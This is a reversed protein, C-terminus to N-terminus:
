RVRKSNFIVAMLDYQSSSPNHLTGDSQMSEIPTEYVLLGDQENLMELASYGAWSSTVQYTADFASPPGYSVRLRLDLRGGPGISNSTYFKPGTEACSAAQIMAGNCDWDALYGASVMTWNVGGDVSKLLDRTNTANSPRTTAYITGDLDEAIATENSGTLARNGATWTAGGDDSVFCIFRFYAGGNEFIYAPLVLRGAYTGHRLQIGQPGSSFICYENAGSAAANMVTATAPATWTAGDDDSQIYEAVHPTPQSNPNAASSVYFLYIRGANTGHRVVLPTHGFAAATQGPVTGSTISRYTVLVRSASATLARTIPDFTLDCAVLRSNQVDTTIVDNTDHSILLVHNDSIKALAPVRYYAGQAVIVDRLMVPVFKISAVEGYNDDAHKSNAYIAQKHSANAATLLPMSHVMAAFERRRGELLQLQVPDTEGELMLGGEPDIYAFVNGDRDQAAWLAGTAATEFEIADQLTQVAAASPFRKGTDTAVGANDWWLELTEASDASVVYFYEGNAVAALGAATNAYIRAAALAADRAVEAAAQATEAAEQAALVDASIEASLTALDTGGLINDVPWGSVTAGNADKLLFKYRHDFQLWILAEGNADLAIPNTNLTTLDRDQWTNAPTTTGAEYVTLSGLALPTGTADTFKIRPSLPVAGAM